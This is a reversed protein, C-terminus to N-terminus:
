SVVKVLSLNGNERPILEFNGIRLSHLFHGDTIFLQKNSIYAVEAGGDLFSIRDNQQRLIIESGAEGLEIDGNVFRIYKQMEQFKTRQNGDIEEVQTQLETFEFAFSDKLQEFNTKVLGAVQDAKAYTGAVETMISESTQQLLTTMKKEVDLEAASADNKVVTIIAQKTQELALSNAAASAVDAGVLSATTKGLTIEGKEDDLMDRARDTLQFWDDVGHPRSIVRVRDGDHFGGISRDMKSLDLATLKLSTLALKHEALWQEAKTKLNIPETVDDWTNTAVITGRLAVAEDDQLYDEGNATVSTIDVRTGDERQAGYPVIVTALDPSAGSQSYDLLNEGFEIPQSSQTGIEALWNICREGAENTNFTIYGGCREVLKDFFAAFTEASDKEMRIYNNADTVTIEGVTFRKFADVQANYLGVAHAFIAAPSDQYLYPRIIGDRLFGREGECTITRRRFFDDDPYLARGRFVLGGNEYVTVVTKYSHFNNYMPHGPPMTITATGSKNLSTTVKLALLKYNELRSDYALREDAFLQIM